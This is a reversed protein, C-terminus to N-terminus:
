FKVEGRMIRGYAVSNLPVYTKALPDLWMIKDHVFNPDFGQKVLEIKKYKFTGTVEVHDKIRLFIPVAYSPLEARLHASLADFDLDQPAVIVAMGARGDNHPITVGYANAQEVGDFASLADGVDTTSVNESKWRFTDGIRDIFYIYGDKDIKMLDGTRFYTDGEAFVNHLIKKNTAEQDNAYGDFQARPDDVDIKGIVEGVEDHECVACLGNVDRWPMETEYDFKIIEFNVQKRLYKPVRGVAHNKGLANIFFVNGETSAYFEMIKPIKFRAEAQEWVEPRLGNGFCSKLKHATENPGPSNSLLYRFLEGIYAFITCNYKVIDDWFNSASFKPALVITGGLNFAMGVACIGGTSHYLPLPIYIVDDPKAGAGAIFVRSMARTRTQTLLAAKPHGTTGSTFIYLCPDAGIITSRYIPNPRRITQANLARDLDNFGDAVAGRLFATVDSLGHAIDLWEQKLSKDVVIASAKAIKICHALPPGTLNYNIFATVVGVKALGYWCAIYDPKNPMFLAVVSGKTLGISIAWNAYTNAINDFQSYSLTKGEFMIAPKPGNQDCIKEWDDAITGHSTRDLEAVWKKTDNMASIFRVEDIINKIVGM